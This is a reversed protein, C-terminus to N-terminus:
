MKVFKKRVVVGETKITIFYVGETLQHIDIQQSFSQTM